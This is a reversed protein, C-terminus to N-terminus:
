KPVKEMDRKSIRWTGGFRYAPLMKSWVARYVTKPNLNLVKALESVSLFESLDKPEFRIGQDGPFSKDHRAKGSWIRDPIQEPFARCTGPKAGLFYKCDYCRATAVPKQSKISKNDVM